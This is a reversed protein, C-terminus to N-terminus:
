TLIVTLNQSPSEVDSIDLSAFVHSEDTLDSILHAERTLLKLDFVLFLWAQLLTADCLAPSASPM